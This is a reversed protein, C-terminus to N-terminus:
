KCWYFGFRESQDVRKAKEKKADPKWLQALDRLSNVVKYENQQKRKALWEDWMKMEEDTIYDM